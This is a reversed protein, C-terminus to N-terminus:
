AVHQARLERRRTLRRALQLAARRLFEQRTVGLDVAAHDIEKLEAASAFRALAAVTLRDAKPKNM